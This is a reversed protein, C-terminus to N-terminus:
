STVPPRDLRFTILQRAVDLAADDDHLNRAVNAAALIADVEFAFLAAAPQPPVDGRRQALAIQRELAGLWQRRSIALADRVPGPRSDFEALTAGMFCGGPLVRREIYVLWCDVLAQLRALGEPQAQAPAIVNSVFVNTAAIVAALQVDQKTRYAAQISSKSVNLVDALKGITMGALGDVSALAAAGEAVSHRTRDGRERRGDM